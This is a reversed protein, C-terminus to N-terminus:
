MSASPRCRKNRWDNIYNSMMESKSCDEKMSLEFGKPQSFIYHPCNQSSFLPSWIWLKSERFTYPPLTKSRAAFGNPFFWDKWLPFLLRQTSRWLVYGCVGVVCWGFLAAWEHVMIRRFFCLNRPTHASCIAGLWLWVALWISNFCKFHHYDFLYATPPRLVKLVKLRWRWPLCTQTWCHRQNSCGGNPRRIGRCFVDCMCM